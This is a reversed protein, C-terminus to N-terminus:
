RANGASRSRALRIPLASYPFAPFLAPGTFQCLILLHLLILARKSDPCGYFSLERLWGSLLIGRNAQPNNGNGAMSVQFVQSGERILIRPALVGEPDAGGLGRSAM